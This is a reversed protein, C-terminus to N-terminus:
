SCRGSRPWAREQLLLQGYLMPRGAVQTRCGTVCVPVQASEPCVPRCVTLCLHQHSSPFLNCVSGAQKRGQRDGTGEAGGGKTCAENPIRDEGERVLSLPLSPNTVRGKVGGTETM